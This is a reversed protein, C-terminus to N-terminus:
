VQFITRFHSNTLQLQSSVRWMWQELRQPSPAKVQYSLKLPFTTRFLSNMMSVWFALNRCWWQEPQLSTSSCVIRRPSLAKLWYMTKLSFLTKFLGYLPPNLQNKWNNPICLKSGNEQSISSWTSKIAKTAIHDQFPWKKTVSPFVQSMQQTVPSVSRQALRKPSAAKLQNSLKLPLITRFLSNRLLRPSFKDRKNLTQPHLGKLWERLLHLKSNIHTENSFHDQFPQKETVTPFIQKM